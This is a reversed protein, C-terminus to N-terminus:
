VGRESSESRRETEGLTSWVFPIGFSRRGFWSSSLSSSPWVTWDAELWGGRGRWRSPSTLICGEPYQTTHIGCGSCVQLSLISLLPGSLSLPTWIPLLPDTPWQTVYFRWLILIEVTFWMPLDRSSSVTESWLSLSVCRWPSLNPRPSNSPLVEAHSTYDM